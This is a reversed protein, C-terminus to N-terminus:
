DRRQYVVYGNRSVRLVYNAELFRRLKNFDRTTDKGRVWPKEDGPVEVVFRPRALRLAELFRGRLEFTYPNSVHHYFPFDYLYPTAPRAEAILMAHVVGGTWDLPQVTDGPRLNARLFEAIEDVRGGKPPAAPRGELRARMAGALPLHHFLFAALVLPPLVRVAAPLRADLEMLSLSMLLVLCYLFPHWHYPFFKGQIGVYGLLALALAVLAWLARRPRPSSRTAWYAILAGLGAPWLWVQLRGFMRYGSYLNFSPSQITALGGSLRTYLPWYGQAMELFPSLAESRWLYLTVALLPIAGGLASWALLRLMRRAVRPASPADTALFAILVPLAVLAPPKLTAAAGFFLGLLVARAHSPGRRASFAVAGGLSLGLIVLDDRQFSPGRGLYVLGWLVGACWAARAGMPWLAAVTGGVTVGLLLLDARRLARDGYGFVHGVLAHLLQSGPPNNDWFDRYPVLGLRDILFGQYMNLPPDHAMRWELSAAAVFSLFATACLLATISLVRTM